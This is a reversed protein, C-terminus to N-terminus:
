NKDKILYAGTLAMIGFYFPLGSTYGGGGEAVLVSGTWVTGKFHEIINEKTILQIFFLGVSTLAPSLLIFGIIKTISIKM